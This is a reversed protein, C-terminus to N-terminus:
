RANSAAQSKPLFYKSKMKGNCIERVVDFTYKHRIGLLHPSQKLLKSFSLLCVEFHTLFTSLMAKASFSAVTVAADRPLFRFVLVASPCCTGSSATHITTRM